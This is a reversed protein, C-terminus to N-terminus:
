ELLITEVIKDGIFLHGERSPHIGDDPNILYAEGFRGNQQSPHYADILAVGLSKALATASDLQEIIRLAQAQALEQPWNIGNKGKGFEYGLPAIEALLYVQPSIAKAQKVLETLTLWYRNVDHPDFPNYAFSGLIIVDPHLETIAKYQRTKFAFPQSFRDLGRKVNEGGIGYNYLQFSTKPYKNELAEALFELKEGMTDIMSDGYLAITYVQKKLRKTPAASPLVYLTPTLTPIQSTVVASKVASQTSIPNLVVSSDNKQNMYNALFLGVLFILIGGLLLATKKM